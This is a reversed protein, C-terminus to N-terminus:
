RKRRPKQKDSSSPLLEPDAFPTCRSVVHVPDRDPKSVRQRQKPERALLGEAQLFLTAHDQSYTPLTMSQAVDDTKAEVRSVTAMRITM